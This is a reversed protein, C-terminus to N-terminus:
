LKKVNYCILVKGDDHTTSDHIDYKFTWNKKAEDLEDLYSKGKLFIYKKTQIQGTLSFIKDIRAFARCTIIDCSLDDLDEVRYNLVNIKNDSIVKASNLFSCKSSDSEILTVEKVGSISLIIGPLGGGSGIDIVKENDNIFKKLQLSDKLHRDNFDEISSKGILNIKDNWKKLLKEYEAFKTERSVNVEKHKLYIIIATLAAPTVGQINRAIAITAPRNKSLLEKVEHSLSSIKFYDLTAPIKINDEKNYLDIDAQQRKLYNLYTSEITLISLLNNEINNIDSFIEKPFDKRAILEYASKITGDQTIKYGAKALQSTTIKSEMLQNRAENLSDVKQKFSDYRENGVLGLKYGIETLRLDANDARMSLRYESRSTFMRYPETVGKTVLDDVMVGIYSNSRTFEYSSKDLVDLAANLGAVLGQAAAEEYGTTGNIQGAFYLNTIKKTRLTHHLQTPDIYDYEIAYAYQDIEVNEFGKISNLFKLQADKTLSCSIGNPYILDSNLGEPELFIQHSDKSSFRLIKDEISPCYRPGNSFQKKENDAISQSIIDHTDSNTRTIYCCIQPNNIEGHMYSFPRPVPDGWQEELIQFNISKKKLRPPTGTKLRGLNFGLNKLSDALKISPNEGSRGASIRDNGLHILGNLFTGTTLIINKPYILNGKATKVAVISSDKVILEIVEDFITNLNPYNLITHSMSKKYLERDSQARPGWVAPGKSENLMKFHIGSNDAVRGMIGDLADIERVLTGKAVGGIAPNCSMQGLNDAKPTILTCSVNLRAAAAAAESGAHGGGIVLVDCKM